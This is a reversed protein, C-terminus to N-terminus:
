LTLCFVFKMKVFYFTDLITVNEFNYEKTEFTSSTTSKKRRSDVFFPCDLVEFKVIYNYQPLMNVVRGTYIGDFNPKKFSFKLLSNTSCLIRCFISNNKEKLRILNYFLIKFWNFGFKQELIKDEECDFAYWFEGRAKNYMHIKMRTIKCLKKLKNQEDISLITDPNAPFQVLLWVM